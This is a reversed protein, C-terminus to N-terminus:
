GPSGQRMGHTLPLRGGLEDEVGIAPDFVPSIAGAIREPAM